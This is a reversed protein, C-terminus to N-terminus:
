DVKRIQRRQNIEHAVQFAVRYGSQRRERAEQVLREIWARVRGHAPKEPVFYKEVYCLNGLQGRTRGGSGDTLRGVKLLLQCAHAVRGQDIVAFHHCEFAFNEFREQAKKQRLGRLAALAKFSEDCAMRARAIVGRKAGLDLTFPFAPEMPVGGAAVSHQTRVVVIFESLSVM